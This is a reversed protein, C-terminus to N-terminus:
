RQAPFRAVLELTATGRQVGIPLWTGPIQRRVAAIVDRTGGVPLGAITTVVDGSQMGAHEAISDKAVERVVVGTEGQDLVIGLRPREPASVPAVGFVYDAVGTDPEECSQGTEWPLLVAADQVGLARLQYPVGYGDRVHGSGMIGVVMRTSGQTLYEGITQAMARDWLQMSQVFRVFQPESLEAETPEATPASRGHAVFSQYLASLYAPQAPAPDGIGERRDKPISEWGQAGVRRVLEREVNLALMPIRHMRAYHFLPLYHAADYGWVEDWQSRALFEQESLDGATWQDLVPQVRRPFMELGLALDPHRAHLAALSQVTALPPARRQRPKRWAARRSARRAPRDSGATATHAPRQRGPAAM